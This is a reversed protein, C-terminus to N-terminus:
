NKLCQQLEKENLGRPWYGHAGERLVPRTVRGVYKSAWAGAFLFWEHRVKLLLWADGEYVAWRRALWVRQQKTFHEILVPSTDANKPWRPLQKLEIWGEVCEVDPTGPGVRNEVRVADLAKLKPRLAVWM